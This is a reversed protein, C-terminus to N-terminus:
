IFFKGECILQAPGELSLEGNEVRVQQTGGPASVTVPSQCRGSTIAAAAAACSGTGSSQTEGAGREFFRVAVNNETRVMVFEVNTGQPFRDRKGQIEEAVRRWAFDFGPVFVVFHPNGLDVARGAVMGDELFINEEESVKASGIAMEFQFSAAERWLLTCTKVGAGTRVKVPSVGNVSNWYAAVCRTGNGSIEAESGDSNILRARVDAEGSESCILEVGDAGVGNVRDCMNRAVQALDKDPADEARIILFDNGAASAKVFPVSRSTGTAIESM